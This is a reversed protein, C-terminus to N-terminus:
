PVHEALQRWTIIETLTQVPQVGRMVAVALSGVLLIIMSFIDYWYQPYWCLWNLLYLLEFWSYIILSESTKFLHNYVQLHLASTNETRWNNVCWVCPPPHAWSSPTGLHWPIYNNYQCLWPLYGTYYQFSSVSTCTYATKLTLNCLSWVWFIRDEM